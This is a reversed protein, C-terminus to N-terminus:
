RNFRLADVIAMRSAKWAPYFAAVAASVVAILVCQLVLSKTLLIEARYGTDRGPPPPMPIGVTSIVKALLYGVIVGAAAGAIGIFIGEIVVMRAVARRRTGLALMTGIEGTRELTNMMMLNAIGLVLIACILVGVVAMQRSLLAVSKRYFDSLELWTREEMGAGALLPRLRRAVDQTLKTDDLGVVWLDVGDVRALKQAMALPMRVAVDDYAKIETAFIGRVRAELGSIGGKPGNILFVVRDGLNVKLSKAVGRGVIVGNPDQDDLRQGTIKLDTNIAQERSAQVGEGTFPVTTEGSSIMGSVHLRPAVTRVGPSDEIQRKLASDPSIRLAPADGGSADRYGRATIQIHGLGTQIASERIAQFLWEIFGGAVLYGAVGIVIAALSLM